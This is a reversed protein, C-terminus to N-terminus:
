VGGAAILRDCDCREVAAGSGREFFVECMNSDDGTLALMMWEVGGEARCSGLVICRWEGCPRAADPRDDGALGDVDTRLLPEAVGTKYECAESETESGSGSESGVEDADSASAAAVAAVATSNAFHNVNTPSPRAFVGAVM